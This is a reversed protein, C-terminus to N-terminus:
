IQTQSELLKYEFSSIDLYQGTPGILILLAAGRSVSDDHPGCCVPDGDCFHSPGGAIRTPALM